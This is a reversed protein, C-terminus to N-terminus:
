NTYIYSHISSSSQGQSAQSYQKLASGRRGIKLIRVAGLDGQEEANAAISRAATDAPPARSSQARLGFASPRCLLVKAM